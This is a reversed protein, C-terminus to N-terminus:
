DDCPRSMIASLRLATRVAGYADLRGITMERSVSAILNFHAKHMDATVLVYRLKDTYWSYSPEGSHSVLPGSGPERTPTVWLSMRCHNQGVYGAHIAGPRGDAPPVYSVLSVAFEAGTLDPLFPVPGLQRLGSLYHRSDLVQADAIRGTETWQDHADRARALWPEQMLWPGLYILVLPVVVPLGGVLAAAVRQWFKENWRAASAAPAPQEDTRGQNM